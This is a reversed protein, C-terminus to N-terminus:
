SLELKKALVREAYARGVPSDAGGKGANYAAIARVIDGEAWTLLAHLITAGAFLGTRPKFLDEPEGVFGHEIATPFMVQLLGYSSSVRRPIWGAWEGKGRLYREYFGPEFRFADTHGSSEVLVQAELLDADLGFQGAVAAIERTYPTRM